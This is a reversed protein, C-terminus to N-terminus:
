AQRAARAKEHAAKQRRKGVLALVTLAVIVIVVGLALAGWLSAGGFPLTVLEALGVGIALLAIVIALMMLVGRARLLLSAGQPPVILGM